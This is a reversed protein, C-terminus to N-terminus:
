PTIGAAGIDPAIDSRRWQGNTGGDLREELLGDSVRLYSEWTEAEYDTQLQIAGDYGFPTTTSTSIVTNTGTGDVTEWTDGVAMSAPLYLRPYPMYSQYGGDGYNRALAYIAGDTAYALEYGEFESNDYFDVTPIAGGIVSSPFLDYSYTDILEGYSTMPWQNTAPISLNLFHQSLNQTNAPNFIVGNMNVRTSCDLGELDWATLTTTAGAVVPIDFCSGFNQFQIRGYANQPLSVMFTGDSQTRTAILREYSGTINGLYVSVLNNAVPQDNIDILTGTLVGANRLQVTIEPAIEGNTLTVATGSGLRTQNDYIISGYAEDGQVRVEVLHEAVAGILAYLTLTGDSKSFGASKFIPGENAEHLRARVKSVPQSNHLMTVPLKAVDQDFIVNGGTTTIDVAANRQGYSHVDYIDPVLWARLSGNRKTVTHRTSPGGSAEDIFVRVGPVPTGGESITVDISRAFGLTLIASYVDGQSLVINEGLNRNNATTVGDAIYTGSANCNDTRNQAELIYEGPPVNIRYNGNEDSLTGAVLFHTHKDRVLVNIGPVPVDSMDDCYHGEVLGTVTAGAPLSFDITRSMVDSNLTVKGGELRLNVGGNATYWQSAANNTTTNIAGIIFDGDGRVGTIPDVDELAPVNIRYNGNADTTTRARPMHSDFDRVKITIGALPTGNSDTVAGTIVASGVASTAINLYKFDEMFAAILDNAYTDPPYYPSSTNHIQTVSKEIELIEDVSIDALSANSNPATLITNIIRSAAHTISNITITNSTYRTELTWEFPSSYRIVYSSGPATSSPVEFSFSNNTITTSALIRLTNGSEDVEIFNITDGDSAVGTADIVGSVVIDGPGGIEILTLSVGTNDGPRLVGVNESGTFRLTNGAYANGKVVIPQAAPVEFSLEGDSALIDGSGIENGSAFVAIVIRDVDSPKGVVASPSVNGNLQQLANRPLKITIRATSDSEGSECGSLTLLAFAVLVTFAVNNLHKTFLNKIM